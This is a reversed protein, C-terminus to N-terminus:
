GLWFWYWKSLYKLLIERIDITETYAPATAQTTTTNVIVHENNKITTGALNNDM